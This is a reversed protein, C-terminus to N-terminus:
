LTKVEEQIRKLKDKLFQIQETLIYHKRKQRRAYQLHQECQDRDPAPPETCGGYICEGRRKKAARYRRTYETHSSM